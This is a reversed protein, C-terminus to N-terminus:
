VVQSLCDTEVTFDISQLKVRDVKSPVELVCPVVQQQHAIQEPLQMSVYRIKM